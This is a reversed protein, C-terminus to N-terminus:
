KEIVEEEEEYDPVFLCKLMCCYGDKESCFACEKCLESLIYKDDAKVYFPGKM